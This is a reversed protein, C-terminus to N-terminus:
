EQMLLDTACDRGQKLNEKLKYNCLLDKLSQKEQQAKYCVSKITKTNIKEIEEASEHCM